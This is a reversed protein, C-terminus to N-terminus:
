QSGNEKKLQNKIRPSLIKLTDILPELNYINRGKYIRDERNTRQRIILNKEELDLLIRQVTRTSVGIRYAIAKQSPYPFKDKEWWHVLLNLLVNVEMPTLKLEAQAFILTSPFPIFGVASTEEGWKDKFATKKM